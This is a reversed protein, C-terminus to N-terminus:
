ICAPPTPSSQLYVTYSESTTFCTNGLTFINVRGHQAITKLQTLTIVKIGDFEIKDATNEFLIHFENDLILAYYGSITKAHLFIKDIIIDVKVDTLYHSIPYFLNNRESSFCAINHHLSFSFNPLPIYTDSQNPLELCHPSLNILYTNQSYQVFFVGNDSCFLKNQYNTLHLSYPLYVSYPNNQIPTCSIIIDKEDTEIGISSHFQTIIGMNKGNADIVADTDCSIYLHIIGM